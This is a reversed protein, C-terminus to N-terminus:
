FGTVVTQWFMQNLVCFESLCFNSSFSAALVKGLASQTLHIRAFIGVEDLVSVTIRDRPNSSPVVFM